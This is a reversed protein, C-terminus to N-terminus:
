YPQKLLKVQKRSNGQIMEVIYVGPRYEAGIQIVQDANLNHMMEVTRGQIDMVRLQVKETNNSSLLQVNFQSNSPNPFAKIALQHVITQQETIAVSTSPDLGFATTTTTKSRVQIKGGSLTTTLSKGDVGLDNTFVLGANISPATATGSTGTRTSPNILRFSIQDSKGSNDTTSEVAVITLDMNGMYWLINGNADIRRFEAKTNITAENGGTIAKTTMSNIANSKIQYIKGDAARYIVNIGGQLNSGTKNWKMTMGFKTKSGVAGPYSGNTTSPLKISGGGTVFDTGSLAITIVEPSEGEGNYYGTESVGVKTKVEIIKGGASVESNTLTVPFAM